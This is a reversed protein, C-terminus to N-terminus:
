SGSKAVPNASARAAMQIAPLIIHPSSETEVRHLWAGNTVPWDSPVRVCCLFDEDVHVRCGETGGCLACPQRSSVASWETEAPARKIRIM